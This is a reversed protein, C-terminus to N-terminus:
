VDVVVFSCNIQLLVEDKQFTFVILVNVKWWPRRDQPSLIKIFPGHM